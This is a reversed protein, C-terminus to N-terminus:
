KGGRGALESAIESLHVGESEWMVMLHYLLDASEWLIEERKHNKAAIIVEGSEEGVKKLIRDIGGNLLKATYSSEPRDINREHIRRALGGLVEGISGTEIAEKRSTSEAEPTASPAPPDISRHFCSYEGTHCAVGKQRVRVLLADGDCDLRVGSVTQTNGSTEGKHWLENRSRSWFWTEGSEMTRILSERNMYALTLVEGSEMDQVIAPILGKEDFRVQDLNM